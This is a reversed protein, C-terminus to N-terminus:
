AIQNDGRDVALFKMSRGDKRHMSLISQFQAEEDVNLLEGRVSHYILKAKIPYICEVAAIIDELTKASSPVKHVNKKYVFKINM